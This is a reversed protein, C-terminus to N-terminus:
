ILVLETGNVFGYEGVRKNVDLETGDSKLYLATAADSKFQRDEQEDLLAAVLKTAEYISLEDPIWLEFSRDAAPLRVSFLTKNKM